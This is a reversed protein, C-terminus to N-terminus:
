RFINYEDINFQMSPFSEDLTTGSITLADVNGKTMAILHDFRNRISNINIDGIIVRNAYKKRLFNLHESKFEKM